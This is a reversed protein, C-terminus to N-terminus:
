RPPAPPASPPCCGRCWCWARWSAGGARLGRLARRWPFTRRMQVLRLLVYGGLLLGGIIAYYWATLAALGYCLGTLAADRRHRRQLTREAFLLTLPLWQTAAIQLHGAAQALRFPALMFIVGALLAAPRAAGVARALGYMGLGSLVFGALLVLNYGLM